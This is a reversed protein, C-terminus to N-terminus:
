IAPFIHSIIKSIVLLEKKPENRQKQPPLDTAIQDITIFCLWEATFVLVSRLM